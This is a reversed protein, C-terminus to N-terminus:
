ENSLAKVLDKRYQPKTATLMRKYVLYAKRDYTYKAAGLYGELLEDKIEGEPFQQRYWKLM